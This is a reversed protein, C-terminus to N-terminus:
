REAGSLALGVAVALLPEAESAADPSMPISPVVREFTRGFVVKASLREDILEPLGAMQSGGGTLLVREIHLGQSQSSYFDLSSRIEDVFGAARALGIRSAEAAREPDVDVGRKLWEAEQESIEMGKAIAATLDRGGWPLIRVFRPLGQVHVCISTVEAGIDIIAEDRKGDEDLWLGDETGVARVIAFPVLDLGMPRLKAESVASIILAVMAKQAAVLLLRAMRNGDQEFEEILHYDLVAEDIPIPVFEQVLFPLSQRLEKEPLWPVIVERVVMKQNGVGLTIDRSKFKGRRWLERLATAVAGPDQIEGGRVAGEPLPVQAVRLL